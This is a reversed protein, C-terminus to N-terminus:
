SRPRPPIISRPVADSYQLREGAVASRGSPFVVPEHQSLQHSAIRRDSQAIPRSCREWGPPSRGVRSVGGVPNAYANVNLTNGVASGGGTIFLAAVIGALSGNNGVNITNNPSSAFPNLTSTAVYTPASTSESTSPTAAPPPPTSASNPSATTTSKASAAAARSTAAPSPTPKIRPPPPTMFPSPRKPPPTGMVTIPEPRRRPQRPQLHRRHVLRRHQRQQPQRRRRQHDDSFGHDHWVRQDFRGGQRWQHHAAGTLAKLLTFNAKNGSNLTVLSVNSFSITGLAGPSFM